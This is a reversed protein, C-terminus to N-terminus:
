NASSPRAIVAIRRQFLRGFLPVRGLLWEAYKFVPISSPRWSVHEVEWGHETLFAILEARTKVNIHGSPNKLIFNHHKLIEFIHSRLPTYIYLKAESAQRKINELISAFVRDPIHETFDPMLVKNIQRGLPMAALDGCEFSCLDKLEPFHEDRLSSSIAIAEPDFDVGHCHCASKSSFDISTKGSSSGCELIFDSAVPKVWSLLFRHKDVSHRSKNLYGSFAGRHNNHDLALLEEDSLDDASM